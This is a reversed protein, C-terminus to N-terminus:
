SCSFRFYFSFGILFGFFSSTGMTLLSLLLLLSYALLLLIERDDKESISDEDLDEEFDESSAGKM